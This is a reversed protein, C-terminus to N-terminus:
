RERDVARASSASATGCEEDYPEGGIQLLAEARRQFPELERRPRAALRYAVGLRAARVDDPEPPLCQGAWLPPRAGSCAGAGTPELSGPRDRTTEGENLEDTEAKRRLGGSELLLVRLASGAFERAIAIGAAGAGVICLDAELEAGDELEGSIARDDGGKLGM